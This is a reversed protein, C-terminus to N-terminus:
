KFQFTFLISIFLFSTTIPWNLFYKGLNEQGEPMKLRTMSVPESVPEQDDKLRKEAVSRDRKLDSELIKVKTDNAEDFLLCRMVFIVLDKLLIYTPLNSHNALTAFHLCSESPELKTKM